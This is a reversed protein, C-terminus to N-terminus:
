GQVFDWFLPLLSALFIAESLPLVTPNLISNRLVVVLSVQEDIGCHWFSPGGRFVRM